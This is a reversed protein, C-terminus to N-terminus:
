GEGEVEAQPNTVAPRRPATVDIASGAAVGHEIVAALAAAKAGMEISRGLRVQYGGVSAALQQEADISVQTETAFEAPLASVFELAGLLAAGRLTDGARPTQAEAWTIEALTIVPWVAPDDVIQVVAGGVTVHAFGNPTQVLAVPVHETLEVEVSGPWTVVVRAEAIWPDALLVSELAAADVSITPMGRAIGTRAIATSPDSQNVGTITVQDVSLLPSRIIWFGAASIGAMIVLAIVVRLRRKARQETVGHRRQAIKRDMTNM